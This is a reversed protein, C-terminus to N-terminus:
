PGRAGHEVWHALVTREDETMSTKNLLPMTRELLTRVRIREAYQQMEAATDFRVGGPAIPFAPITPQESHCSVCHGQVVARAEAYSPGPASPAAEPCGPGLAFLV